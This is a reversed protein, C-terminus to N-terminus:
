LLMKELEEISIEEEKYLIKKKFPDFKVNFLTDVANYYKKLYRWDDYFVRIVDDYLYTRIVRKQWYDLKRNFYIYVHIGKRTLAIRCRYISCIQKLRLLFITRELPDRVSWDYDIGIISSTDMASWYIGM